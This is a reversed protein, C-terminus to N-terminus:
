KEAKKGLGREALAMENLRWEVSGSANQDQVSLYYRDALSKNGRVDYYSALYYLM